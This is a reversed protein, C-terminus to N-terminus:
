RSGCIDTREVEEIEGDIYLRKTTNAYSSDLTTSYNTWNAQANLFRRLECSRDAAVLTNSVDVRDGIYVKMYDYPTSNFVEGVSQWDFSLVFQNGSPFTIDRYAWISSNNHNYDYTVGDSTVYLAKTPSNYIASGIVWQNSRNVYQWNRNENSNEFDCNYAVYRFSHPM